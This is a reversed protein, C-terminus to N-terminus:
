DLRSSRRERERGKLMGMQYKPCCSPEQLKLLESLEREYFTAKPCAPM